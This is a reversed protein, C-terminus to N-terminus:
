CVCLRHRWRFIRSDWVDRICHSRQNLFRLVSRTEESAGAHWNKAKKWEQKHVGGPSDIADFVSHFSREVGVEFLISALAEAAVIREM